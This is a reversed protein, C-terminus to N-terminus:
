RIVMLKFRKVDREKDYNVVVIYMGSAVPEDEDNKLNWTVVPDPIYTFNDVHGRSMSCDLPGFDKVLLGALNYIMIQVTSCNDTPVFIEVESDEPYVPNPAAGNVIVELTDVTKVATAVVNLTFTFNDTVGQTSSITVTGTIPATTAVANGGIEIKLSGVKMSNYPLDTGTWIPTPVTATIGAVSFTVTATVGRVGANGPGDEPDANEVNPGPNVVSFYLEKSTEQGAVLAEHNADPPIYLTGFNMLNTKLDMDNNDVDLDYEENVTFEAPLYDSAGDLDQRNPCKDAVVAIQGKYTGALTGEPVKITVVVKRCANMALSDIVPPDFIANSFAGNGTITIDFLDVVKGDNKVWFSDSVTTGMNIAPFTLNSKSTNCNSEVITLHCDTPEPIPECVRVRLRFWDMLWYTCPEAQDFEPVSNCAPTGQIFVMDTPTLVNTLEVPNVQFGTYYYGPAVSDSQAIIKVNFFEADGAPLNTQGGAVEFTLNYPSNKDGNLFLTGTASRGTIWDVEDADPDYVGIDDVGVTAWGDYADGENNADNDAPVLLKFTKSVNHSDPMTKCYVMEMLNNALDAQDDIIDIDVSYVAFRLYFRDAAFSCDNAHDADQWTWWPDDKYAWECEDGTGNGNEDAQSPNYNYPCNDEFNMVGDRDGDGYEMYWTTIILESTNPLIPVKYEYDEGTPVEWGPENMTYEDILYPVYGYPLPATVPSPETPADSYWGYTLDVGKVICDGTVNGGPSMDYYGKPIYEGELPSMTFSNFNGRPHENFVDEYIYVAYIYEGPFLDEGAKLESLPACGNKYTVELTITDREGLELTTNLCSVTQGDLTFTFPWVDNRRPPMPIGDTWCIPVVESKVPDLDLNSWDLNCDFGTRYMIDNDFATLITQNDVPNLRCPDGFPAFGCNEYIEEDPNQPDDSPQCNLSDDPNSNVIVFDGKLTASDGWAGQLYMWNCTEDPGFPFEDCCDSCALRTPDTCELTPKGDNVDLATNFIDLDHVECVDFRFGTTDGVTIGSILGTGQVAIPLIYVGPPTGLPIEIAIDENLWFEFFYDDGAQTYMDWPNFLHSCCFMNPGPYVRDETVYTLGCVDVADDDFASLWFNPDSQVDDEDRPDSDGDGFSGYPRVRPPIDHNDWGNLWELANLVLWYNESYNTSYSILRRADQAPVPRWENCLPTATPAGSLNISYHAMPLIMASDVIVPETGGLDADDTGIWRGFGGVWCTDNTNTRSNWSVCSFWRGNVLTNSYEEGATQVGGAWSGPNTTQHSPNIDTPYRVYGSSFPGTIGTGPTGLATGNDFGSSNPWWQGGQPFPSLQPVNDSLDGDGFGGGVQDGGYRQPTTGYYGPAGYPDVATPGFARTDLVSLVFTGISTCSYRGQLPGTWNIAWPPTLPIYNTWFRPDWPFYTGVEYRTDVPIWINFGNPDWGRNVTQTVGQSSIYERACADNTSYEPDRDNIDYTERWEDGGPMPLEDPNTAEPASNSGFPEGWFPIEVTFVQVCQDICPDYTGPITVVDGPVFCGQYRSDSWRDNVEPQPNCCFGPSRFIPPLDEVIDLDPFILAVRLGVDHWIMHCNGGEEDKLYDPIEQPINRWAGLTHCYDYAYVTWCGMDQFPLAWVQSLDQGFPTPDIVAWFGMPDACAIRNELLSIDFDFVIQMSDGPEILSASQYSPVDEPVIGCHSLVAVAISDRGVNVIYFTDRVLGDDDYPYDTNPNTQDNLLYECGGRIPLTTIDITWDETPSGYDQSRTGAVMTTDDLCWRPDAIAFMTSDAIDLQVRLLTTCLEAYTTDVVCGFPEILCLNDPYYNNQPPTPLWNWVPYCVGDSYRETNSVAYELWWYDSRHPILHPIENDYLWVLGRWVNVISANTLSDIVFPVFPRVRNLVSPVVYYYPQTADGLDFESIYTQGRYLTLYPDCGMSAIHLHEIYRGEPLCCTPIEAMDFEFTYFIIEIEEGCDIGNEYYTAIMMNNNLMPASVGVPYLPHNNLYDRFTWFGLSFDGIKEWNEGTPDALTPSNVLCPAMREIYGDEDRDSAYLVLDPGINVGVIETGSNPTDGYPWMGAYNAGDFTTFVDGYFCTYADSWMMWGPGAANPANAGSPPYTDFGDTFPVSVSRAPTYAGQAPGPGPWYGTQWWFQAGLFTNVFGNYLPTPYLQDAGIDEEWEFCNNDLTVLRSRDCPEEPQGNSNVLEWTADDNCDFYPGMVGLIGIIIPDAGPNYYRGTHFYRDQEWNDPVDLLYPNWTLGCGGVDYRFDRWSRVGVPNQITNGTSDRDPQYCAAGCPSTADADADRYIDVVLGFTQTQGSYTCITFDGFDVVDIGWVYKGVRDTQDRFSFFVRAGGVDSVDVDPCCPLDKEQIQLQIVDFTFDPEWCITDNEPNGDNLVDVWVDRWVICGNGGVMVYGVYNDIVDDCLFLNTLFEGDITFNVTTARCMPAEMLGDENAMPALDVPVSFWMNLNTQNFFYIYPTELWSGERQGYERWTWWRVDCLDENAWCAPPICPNCPESCPDYGEAWYCIGQALDKNDCWAYETYLIGLPVVDDVSPLSLYLNPCRYGDCWDILNNCAAEEIKKWQWGTAVVDPLPECLGPEVLLECPWITINPCPRIYMFIMLPRISECCEANFYPEFVCREKGRDNVVWGRTIYWGAPNPDIIGDVAMGSGSTGPEKSTPANKLTLTDKCWIPDDFDIRRCLADLDDETFKIPDENLFDIKGAPRREVRIMGLDRADSREDTYLRSSGVGSFGPTDYGVMISDPMPGYFILDGNEPVTLIDNCAENCCNWLRWVLRDSWDRSDGDPYSLDYCDNVESGGSWNLINGPCFDGLYLYDIRVKGNSDEDPMNNCDYSSVSNRSIVLCSPYIPIQGWSLTWTLLVTFATALFVFMLKTKRSMNREGRPNLPKSRMM